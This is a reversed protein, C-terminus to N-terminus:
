VPYLAGEEGRHSVPFESRPGKCIDGEWKGHSVSPVVGKVVVMRRQM